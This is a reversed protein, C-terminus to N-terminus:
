ARQRMARRLGLAGLAGLVLLVVSAPEPIVNVGTAIPTGADLKELRGELSLSGQLQAVAPGGPLEFVNSEPPSTLFSVLAQPREVREMMLDSGFFAIARERPQFVSFFERSPNAMWPPIDLPAATGRSRFWTMFEGLMTEQQVEFFARDIADALRGLSKGDGLRSSFNFWSGRELGGDRVAVLLNDIGRLEEAHLVPVLVLLLIVCVCHKM